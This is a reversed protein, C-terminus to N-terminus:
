SSLGVRVPMHQNPPAEALLSLHQRQIGVAADVAQQATDFIALLGDGLTKVVHGKHTEIVRAIAHNYGTVVETARANGLAEFVATSGHLDTFLVTQLEPM